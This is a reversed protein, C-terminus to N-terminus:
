RRRSRARAGREHVGKPESEFDYIKSNIRFGDVAGVWNNDRGKGVAVSYIIPVPPGDNLSAKAATFTCMTAQNCGTCVGAMGTFYWDGTTTADIYGSWRNTVPAAAPVWVMTTYTTACGTKNPNIEFRINPMNRAGGASVNENTQFVHFGTQNIGLVPDGFFDVENGFDVKEAPPVGATAADATEIGLSGKGYPPEAADGTVGISGYPGTRLDAVPSGITNRTIVGWHESKVSHAPAAIAASGAMVVFAVLAAFAAAMGLQRRTFHLTM